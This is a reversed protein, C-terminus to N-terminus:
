IALLHVLLIFLSSVLFLPMSPRVVPSHSDIQVIFECTGQSANKTTVMALGQFFCGEENQNQVQFYMNFAYSVNGEMDMGNCTSGYGLATCDSNACAYNVNEGLKSRDKVDPNLVCWQQPLYKVNKAGVLMKNQGQGSLDMQFKPQGDYGFIGWHREFSGPAISKADEDLLGFLYTEIYKGPRLPTGQNTAMRKLLGTYFRQALPVNANVDGETPWGVEGIMVAMDNLGIGKLASILTDFNADLVNTYKIEGDVVPADTGDFFAFDVPFDKNLYLSLFPYINVSFPSDHQNLFQTIDKMLDGIDPRFRGASPVPNEVPSEYVNANFPITAKVKTELGADVLAKQINQLAPFTVNLYSGNYSTLFPENGVAVYRYAM